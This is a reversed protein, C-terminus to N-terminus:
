ACGWFWRIYNNLTISSLLMLMCQRQVVITRKNFLRYPNLVVSEFAKSSYHIEESPTIVLLTDEKEITCDVEDFWMALTLENRLIDVLLCTNICSIPLDFTRSRWLRNLCYQTTIPNDKDFTLHIDDYLRTKIIWYEASVFPFDFYKISRRLTPWINSYIFINNTSLKLSLDKLPEIIRSNRLVKRRFHWLVTHISLGMCLLGHRKTVIMTGKLMVVTISEVFSCYCVQRFFQAVFLPSSHAMM